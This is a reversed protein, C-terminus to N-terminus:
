EVRRKSDLSPVTPSIKRIFFLSVFVLIGMSVIAYSYSRAGQSATAALVISWVIPGAFTAFREMLIFFSFSSARLEKASFESVLARSVGWTPGFFIGAILCIVVVLSFSPAFALAPFLVIWSILLWFLTRVGGKKDAISGGLIAGIVSLSLIGATLYTKVSDSANHVKELFIPFNNSFTLLADSFLFYALLLFTLNKNAFILNLTKRVGSLEDRISERDIRSQPSGDKFWFLLPMALIGFLIAAPLLTQARGTAGFLYIAGTALPLTILLGIVQGAYNAGMGLGSVFNRNTTDSIDSLMPTYYVFSLLYFYLGCTYVLAALLVHAPAFLTVLATGSFLLFTIVTTIRVGSLKKQSYDLRRGLIPATLVFLSSSGALIANFWWDPKGSDVVLWQSFYFLFVIMVISNAFDYLTWFFINKRM